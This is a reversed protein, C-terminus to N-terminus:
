GRRADPHWAALVLLIGFAAILGTLAQHYVATSTMRFMRQGIVFYSALALAPLLVCVGFDVAPPHAVFLTALQTLAMLGYCFAIQRRIEHKDRYLSGVIWALIGGGLNSAGHVFGLMVLLADLRRRVWGQMAERSSGFSRLFATLLLAFGVLPRADLKRELALILVTAGLVAPVTLFLFRRRLPDLWPGRGQAVQVGSIVISCPLLYALVEDFPLGLLLLTPTGFVLLGVGFIAQAGSYGVVAAAVALQLTLSM